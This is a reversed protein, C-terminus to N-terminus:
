ITEFNFNKLLYNLAIDEANDPLLSLLNRVSQSADFNNLLLARILANKLLKMEDPYHKNLENVIQDGYQSFQNNQLATLILELDDEDIYRQHSIQHNDDPQSRIFAM